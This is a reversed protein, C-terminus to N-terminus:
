PVAEFSVAVGEAGPEPAYTISVASVHSFDDDAIVGASKAGDLIAKVLNDIDRGKRLKGVVVLVARVPYVEVPALLQLQPIAVLRWAKYKQSPFRKGGRGSVFLNNTSPPVPVRVSQAGFATRTGMGTVRGEAIATCIGPDDAYSAPFSM